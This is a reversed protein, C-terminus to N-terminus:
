TNIANWHKLIKLTVLDCVNKQHSFYVILASYLTNHITYPTYVVCTRDPPPERVFMATISKKEGM